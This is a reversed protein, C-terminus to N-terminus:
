HYPSWRSRCKEGGRREGSRMGYRKAQRRESLDLFPLFQLNVIYKVHRSQLFRFDADTRPKSGKYVGEDVQGFRVLTTGARTQGASHSALVFLPLLLAALLKVM